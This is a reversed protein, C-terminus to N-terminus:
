IVIYVLRDTYVVYFFKDEISTSSVSIQCFISMQYFDAQYKSFLVPAKIILVFCLIGSMHCM